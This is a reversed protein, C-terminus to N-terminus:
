HVLAEIAPKNPCFKPMTVEPGSQALWTECRAALNCGACRTVLRDLEARQLWGEVVAHSLNVGSVRAMGRTLWWARYADPYGIMARDKGDTAAWGVM